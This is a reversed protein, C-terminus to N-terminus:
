LYLYINHLTQVRLVRMRACYESKFIFKIKLKTVQVPMLTPVSEELYDNFTASVIVNPPLTLAFDQPRFRQFM